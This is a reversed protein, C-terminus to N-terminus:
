RTWWDARLVVSTRRELAPRNLEIRIARDMGSENLPLVRPKSGHSRPDNGHDPALGIHSSEPWRSRPSTALRCPLARCFRLRANSECRRRWCQFPLRLLYPMPDQFGVLPSSGHAPEFGRGKWWARMIYCDAYRRTAASARACCGNLAGHGALQHHFLVQNKIPLSLTRGEPQTGVGIDDVPQSRQRKAASVPDFGTTPVLAGQAVM